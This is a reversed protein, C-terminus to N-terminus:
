ESRECIPERGIATLDVGETMARTSRLATPGRWWCWWSIFSVVRFSIEISFLLHTKPLCLDFSISFLRLGPAIAFSSVSFQGVSIVYGAVAATRATEPNSSRDRLLRGSNWGSETMQCHWHGYAKALHVIYFSGSRSSGGAAAFLVGTRVERLSPRTKVWSNM